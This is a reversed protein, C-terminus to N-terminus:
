KKKGKFNPRNNPKVYQQQVRNVVPAAVEVPEDDAIVEQLQEVVEEKVDEIIGIVKEAIHEVSSQAVRAVKKVVEEEVAVFRRDAFRPM